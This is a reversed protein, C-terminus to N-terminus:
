PEAADGSLLKMLGCSLIAATETRVVTNGLSVAQYSYQEALKYEAESLGQEPGIVLYNEVSKKINELQYRTQNDNPAKSGGSGCFVHTIVPPETSSYNHASRELPPTLILRNEQYSKKRSTDAASCHLDELIKALSEQVEIKTFVESFSQKVASDRVRNLREKRKECVAKDVKPSTLFFNISSAGIEVCKECILDAIAAKYIGVVLHLAAAATSERKEILLVEACKDTTDIVKARYVESNDRFLVEIEADRGLRIVNKLHHTEQECLRAHTPNKHLTGADSSPVYAESLDALFRPIRM